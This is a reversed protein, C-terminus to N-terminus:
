DTRKVRKLVISEAKSGASADFRNPRDGEDADSRRLQLALLGGLHGWEPVPYLSARRDRVSNAV